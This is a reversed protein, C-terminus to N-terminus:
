RPAFGGLVEIADGLCLTLIRRQGGDVKAFRWRGSCSKWFTQFKPPPEWLRADGDQQRTAAKNNGKMVRWFRKCFQPRNPFTSTPLLLTGVLYSSPWLVTLPSKHEREVTAIQWFSTPSLSTGTRNKSPKCRNVIPKHTSTRPPIWM